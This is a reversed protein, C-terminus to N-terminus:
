SISKRASKQIHASIEFPIYILAMVIHRPSILAFMIIDTMLMVNPFNMLYAMRAYIRIHPCVM